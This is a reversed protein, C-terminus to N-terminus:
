ATSPNPWLDRLDAPMCGRVDDMEGPSIHGSIVRLVARTVEEADIQPVGPFAAAVSELIEAAHPKSPPQKPSWNEYYCGRLLMPLQSAFQAGENLPLRDRLQQLVVRLANFAMDHDQWNLQRAIENIWLNTKENTQVLAHATM